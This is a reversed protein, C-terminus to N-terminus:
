NHEARISCPGRLHKPENKKDQEDPESANSQCRQEADKRVAIAHQGGKMSLGCDLVAPNGADPWDVHVLFVM